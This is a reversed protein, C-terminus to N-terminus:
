GKARVVARSRSEPLIQQCTTTFTGGWAFTPDPVSQCRVRYGRVPAPNPGDSVVPIPLDTMQPLVCGSTAGALIAVIALRRLLPM